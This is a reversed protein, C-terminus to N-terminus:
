SSRTALSMAPDERPIRRPLFTRTTAARLVPPRFGCGPHSAPGPPRTEVPVPLSKKVRPLHPPTSRLGSLLAPIRLLISVSSSCRSQRSWQSSRRTRHDEYRARDGPRSTSQSGSRSRTPPPLHGATRGPRGCPRGPSASTGAVRGVPPNWRVHFSGRLAAPTTIRVPPAYPIRVGSRSSAFCGALGCRSKDSACQRRSQCRIHCCRRRTPRSRCCRWRYIGIM